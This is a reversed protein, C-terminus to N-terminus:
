ARRGPWRRQGAERRQGEPIDVDGAQPQPSSSAQDDSGASTVSRSAPQANVDREQALEWLEQFKDQLRDFLGREFNRRLELVPPAFVEPDDALNIAWLMRDGARIFWCCSLDIDDTVIQVHENGDLTSFDVTPQDSLIRVQRGAEAQAALADVLEAPLELDSYPDFVDILGDSTEIFAVLDPAGEDSHAWAGVVDSRGEADVQAAGDRRTAAEGGQEAWGLQHEPQNLACSAAARHRPYPTATGALWRQVSKPDVRIVDAFEEPTLGASELANKLNENAM